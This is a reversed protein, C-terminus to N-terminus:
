CHLSTKKAMYTVPKLRLMWRPRSKWPLSPRLMLRLRPKWSRRKALSSPQLMLRPRPKWLLRKKLLSPRLMLRPRPKWSPRKALSSPRLMLRPRPKWLLRKKLMLRPRLMLMLMLMLMLVADAKAQAELEAKEGALKAAADAKAQAELEAKEGALKAEADAKARAELETEKEALKAQADADAKAQADADADAKAQAELEAKESAFNAQADADAKAADAKAAEDYALRKVQTQQVTVSEPSSPLDEKSEAAVTNSAKPTTLQHYANKMTGGLGILFENMKGMGDKAEAIHGEVTKDIYSEFMATNTGGEEILPPLGAHTVPPSALLDLLLDDGLFSAYSGDELFPDDGLSSLVSDVENNLLIQSMDLLPPMDHMMTPVYKSSFSTNIKLGIILIIIPSFYHTLNVQREWIGVCDNM